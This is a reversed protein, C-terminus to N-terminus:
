LRHGPYLSEEVLDFVHRTPTDEYMRIEEIIVGREREFEKSELLSEFLMDDLLDVAREAFSKGVKVYYGTYEKSTFANFEAGVADLIRSIDMAKPRRKTGKFLMHELFHAAGAVPSSEYRSGVPVMAFIAVSHAGAIPAQIVTLGNSLKTTTFM